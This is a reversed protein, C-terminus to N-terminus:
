SPTEMMPHQLSVYWDLLRAATEIGRRVTAESSAFDERSMEIPEVRARIVASKAAREIQADAPLVARYLRDMEALRGGMDRFELDVNGYGVQAEVQRTSAIRRTQLCHFAVPDSNGEKSTAHIASSRTANGAELVGALVTPRERQAGVAM